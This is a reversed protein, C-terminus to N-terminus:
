FFIIESYSSFLPVYSIGEEDILEKKKLDSFETPRGWPKIGSELEKLIKKRQNSASKEKHCFFFLDLCSCYGFESEVSKTNQM